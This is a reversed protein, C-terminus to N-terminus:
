HLRPSEFPKGSADAYKAKGNIGVPLRGYRTLSGAGPDSVGAKILGNILAEARDADREPAALMLWAQYNGPSTEVLASPQLRLKDLAVKTGLDDLLVLWVASWCDKRRSQRGDEARKFTSICVYNNRDDRIFPPLPVAPAGFWVRHQADAVDGPFGALWPMEDGGIGAFANALFDINNPAKM